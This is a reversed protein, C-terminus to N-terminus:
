VERGKRYILGYVYFATLASFLWAFFPRSYNAIPCFDLETTGGMLSLTMPTCAEGEFILPDLADTERETPAEFQSLGPIGADGADGSMRAANYADAQAELGANLEEGAGTAAARADQTTAAKEDIEVKCPPLGPGGCPFEISGEEQGTGQGNVVQHHQGTVPSGSSGNPAGFNTTDRITTGSEGPYSVVAQSTGDSNVTYTASTGDPNHVTVYNSGLEVNEPLSACDPDQPDCVLTNGVRKIGIADDSPKQVEDAEDLNCVGGSLAYGAPCATSSSIGGFNFPTGGNVDPNTWRCVGTSSVLSANAGVAGEWSAKASLCATESSSFSGTTGYGSFTVQYNTTADASSPPADPGSWGSPTPLPVNPDLQVHIPATGSTHGEGGFNVFAVVAGIAAGSLLLAGALEPTGGATLFLGLLLPFVAAAQVAYSGLALCLLGAAFKKKM